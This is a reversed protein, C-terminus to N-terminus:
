LIYIYIYYLLDKLFVGVGIITKGVFHLHLAYFLLLRHFSIRLKGMHHKQILNTILLPRVNGREKWWTPSESIIYFATYLSWDLILSCQRLSENCLDVVHNWDIWECRFHHFFITLYSCVIVMAM